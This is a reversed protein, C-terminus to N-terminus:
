CDDVYEPRTRLEEEAGLTVSSPWLYSRGRARLRADTYPIDWKGAKLKTSNDKQLRRDVPHKKRRPRDSSGLYKGKLGLPSDTSSNLTRGGSAQMKPKPLPCAEVTQAPETTTGGESAKHKFNTAERPCNDASFYKSAQSLADGINPDGSVKWTGGECGYNWIYPRLYTKHKNDAHLSSDLSKKSIPM